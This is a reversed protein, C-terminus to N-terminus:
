AYSYGININEHLSYSGDKRERMMAVTRNERYINLYQDLSNIEKPEEGEEILLFGNETLELFHDAIPNLSKDKNTEKFLRIEMDINAVKLHHLREKEEMMEESVGLARANKLFAIKDALETFKEKEDPTRQYREKM